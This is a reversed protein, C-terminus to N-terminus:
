IRKKKEQKHDVASALAESKATIIACTVSRPHRLKSNLVTGQGCRLFAKSPADKTNHIQIKSVVQKPSDGM